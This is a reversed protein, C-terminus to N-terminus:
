TAVPHLVVAGDELDAFYADVAVRPAITRVAAAAAALDAEQRARLQSSAIHLKKLYFGCNAHAVLVVRDLSHSEILFRLQERLADEERMSELHGALAAAGGPIALRDYRPLGLARHLFEDFQEGYRGDSCYIAVAGIREAEFMTSTRWAASGDPM